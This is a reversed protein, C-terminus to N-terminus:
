QPAPRAAVPRLRDRRSVWVAMWPLASPHGAALGPGAEPAEPGAAADVREGAAEPRLAEADPAAEVVAPRAAADRQAGVAAVAGAPRVEADALVAGVAPAEVAHVEAVRPQAPAAHQVVPQEGLAVEAAVAPLLLVVAHQAAPALAARLPREREGRLVAVEAEEEAGEPPQVRAHRASPVAVQRQRVAAPRDDEPCAARELVPCAVQPEASRGVPHLAVVAEPAPIM